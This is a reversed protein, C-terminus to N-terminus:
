IARTEGCASRRMSAKQGPGRVRRSGRVAAMGSAIVAPRGRTPTRMGLWGMARSSMRWDPRGMEAGLGLWEPAEKAWISGLSKSGGWEAETEGQDGQAM